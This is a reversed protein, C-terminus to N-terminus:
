REGSESLADALLAHVSEEDDSGVVVAVTAGQAAAARWRGSEDRRAVGPAGGWAQAVREAAGDAAPAHAHRVQLVTVVAAGRRYRGVAM